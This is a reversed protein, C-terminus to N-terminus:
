GLATLVAQLIQNGTYPKSVTVDVGEKKMAARQDADLNGSAVICRLAPNSKRMELYAQWGGLRPLGLDLLVLDIRGANEAHCAIASHGDIATLVEFGNEELMDRIPNLLMEEDEVVLLTRVEGATKASATVQRSDKRRAKRGGSTEPQEAADGDPVEIYLRFTTGKAKETELDIWGRHANVIGYVVALGLGQGKTGKTTFFPEFIRRRTEGDMGDGTDAVCLEVYRRGMAEPFKARLTEGTVVDTGLTLVGGRPMADRANVALNLLAQHLQNPDAHIRPLHESLKTQVKIQKPFTEHLMSVVERVVVNADTPEFSVDTKKAFTLLQRVVATGREVAREVSRASEARKDAAAGERALVAVHASIINLLNNFDHAVGGALRGISDLKQMQRVQEQLKTRETVDRLNAQTVLREGLKYTNTIAEVYVPQGTKTLLAVEQEFGFGGALNSDFRSKAAVPDVYLGVDWPKKGILEARSFGVLDQFFPNVDVLVGTKADMLWIGERATEFILRYQAESAKLADEATKRETIDDIALLILSEPEGMMRVGRANLLLRKSGLGDIDVDVELDHIWHRESSARELLTKLEPATKEIGWLSLFSKGETQLASTQFMRYFSRNATRVKLTSDLVILAERVTEVLSEAYGRSRNVQELSRKLPDIDFFALVTGDIRNDMTRYPKARMLYWRGESDQVERERTAVNDLVDPLLTDFEANKLNPKIDRLRRGLDSPILNLLKEAQPTFRRLRGETDLMVIPINTGTLLNILDNNAQTLESNRNQLEENVTTLEENTSQLEEKATELEENTSQLEENSSLIEENASKLEENSAEQEEIISQLYDKTATLEQELKVITEHSTRGPAQRPAPAPEPKRKQGKEEFLVLIHHAGTGDDRLPVVELNVDHFHGDQRVQLNEVRVPKHSKKAKLIATRLEVLLGERAMKLINFSAVGSPAELYPSTRGRFQVVDYNDNILVGSPGYRGLVLRDAEKQLDVPTIDPARIIAREEIEEATRHRGFDLPPRTTGPRKIFIRQNRDIPAFLDGFGTITEANGLMLYGNPRLAYHFLPVVRKQLVPELYILLNRCSILDLNSFPPDLTVNQRAFVCVDRIAKSIQWGGDSKAFFRKLRDPSVDAMSNDLYVGTRAKEIATESVDTAFIQIPPNGEIIQLAEFLSIAISYVEEGTSCGPVWIRVPLNAPRDKLIGPFVMGKLTKFVEPDRFFATVTILIDEHLARVEEPEKRLTELYKKVTEAKKLAMRRAVRRKVTTQRYNTFDVGTTSRLISLIKAHDAAEIDGAGEQTQAAPRVYPHRGMRALEEAIKEPPYVFDVAGAAIAARPMDYFKATDEAQAFTLGGEAKIARLGLAGDSMTGSLVIGIARAKYKEALSRMFHDIGLERGREKPRPNVKFSGDYLTIETNAAIVYVNNPVIRMGSRVELVPMTTSRSLIDKLMSERKPDLHQVLVYAMGTDPPLYELLKTFAELGGASAGIGVIPFGDTSPAAVAAPTPTPKKPSGARKAQVAKKKPPSNL